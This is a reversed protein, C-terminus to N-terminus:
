PHLSFTPTNTNTNDVKFSWKVTHFNCLKETVWIKRSIWSPSDLTEFDTMISCYCMYLSQTKINICNQMIKPSFNVLHLFTLAASIAFFPLKLVEVNRLISKVYFADFAEFKYYQLKTLLTQLKSTCQNFLYFYTTLKKRFITEKKTLTTLKPM